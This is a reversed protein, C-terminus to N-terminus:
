NLTAPLLPIGRPEQKGCPAVENSWNVQRLRMGKRSTVQKYSISSSKVRKSECYFSRFFYTALFHGLKSHIPERYIVNKEFEFFLERSSEWLFWLFGLFISSFKVLKSECYFSRFFYTALFNSLKSWIPLGCNVNKQSFLTKSCKLAFLVWGM